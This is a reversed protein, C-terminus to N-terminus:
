TPEWSRIWHNKKEKGKFLDHFAAASKELVLKGFIMEMMNNIIRNIPAGPGPPWAWPPWMWWSLAECSGFLSLHGNWFHSQTALSIRAPIKPYRGLFTLDPSM